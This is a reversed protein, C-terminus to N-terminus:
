PRWRRSRALALTAILWRLDGSPSRASVVRELAWAQIHNQIQNQVRSLPSFGAHVAFSRSFMM